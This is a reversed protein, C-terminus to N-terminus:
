EKSTTDGQAVIEADVITPEPAPAPEPTPAETPTPAPTAPAEASETQRSLESMRTDLDLEGSIGVVFTFRHQNAGTVLEGPHLYCTKQSVDGEIARLFTSIAGTIASAPSTGTISVTVLKAGDRTIVPDTDANKSVDAVEELSRIVHVKM